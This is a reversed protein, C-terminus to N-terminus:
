AACRRSPTARETRGRRSQHRNKWTPPRAFNGRRWCVARHAAKGGSCAAPLTGPSAAPPSRPRAAPLPHPARRSRPKGGRQECRRKRTRASALCTHFAARRSSRSRLDGGLTVPTGPEGMLPLAPARPAGRRGGPLEAPKWGEAEPGVQAAPCPSASGKAPM